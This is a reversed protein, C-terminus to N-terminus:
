PVRIMNFKCIHEMAIPKTEQFTEIGGGDYRMVEMTQPPQHLWCREASSDSCSFNYVSFYSVGDLIFLRMLAGAAVIHPVQKGLQRTILEKRTITTKLNLNTDNLVLYEDSPGSPTSFFTIKIVTDLKGDNDVDFKAVPLAYIKTGDDTFIKPYQWPVVEFEESTPYKSPLPPMSHLREQDSFGRYDFPRAFSWNYVGQMHKCVKDDKSLVLDYRYTAFEGDGPPAGARVPNAVLMATALAVFANITLRFSKWRFVLQPMRGGQSTKSKNITM